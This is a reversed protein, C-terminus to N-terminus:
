SDSKGIKTRWHEWIIVQALTDLRCYRLLADRVNERRGETNMNLGYIMDQYARMAEVGDTVGRTEGSDSAESELGPVNLSPLLKYPNEPRKGTNPELLNVAQLWRDIRQSSAAKLAAPLAVKISTRGSMVPHFWHRVTLEHQDVLRSSESDDDGILQTLWSVLDQHEGEHNDQLWERLSNLQTREYKSWIIVSGTDGIAERLTELFDIAPYYSETNLFERHLPEAGEENVTHCSWQFVVTQYPKMGRHYPVPSISAEFDIFHLPYEWGDLAARIAAVDLWETSSRTHNIQTLIREGTSGLQGDPNYLQSEEIDDHSVLGDDIWRNVKPAKWGGLTGVKYLKRIHREPAAKAGWCERFGNRGDTSDFDYECSFCHKSISTKPHLLEPSSLWEEFDHASQDVEQLRQGVLEEIDWKRLLGSTRIADAVSSDGLFDVSADKFHCVRGHDQRNFFSTLHDITAVHSKDPTMLWPVVRCHPLSRRVVLLQFAVDDLYPEWEKGWKTNSSDQLKSKVEILDIHNGNKVLIDCRVLRRGMQFAPEYLVINENAICEQTMELARATIEAYNSDPYRVAQQIDIGGPVVLKAIAGILFGGEALFTLYGNESQSNPYNLKKYYLKTPCDRGLQFDSKSLTRHITM